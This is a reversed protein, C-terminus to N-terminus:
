AARQRKAGAEKMEAKYGEAELVMRDIEEKSLLGRDSSITIEKQGTTKDEASVNLVGNEDVDFTVVIRPAARPAPAIGALEFKGLLYNDRTSAREGEYM